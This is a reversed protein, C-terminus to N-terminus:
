PVGQLRSRALHFDRHSRASWRADKVRGSGYGLLSQHRYPASGAGSDDGCIPRRHEDTRGDDSAGRHNGDTLSVPGSSPSKRQLWPTRALMWDRQGTTGQQRNDILRSTYAWAQAILQQEGTEIENCVLASVLELNGALGSATLNASSVILRGGRRGFQLFLKPHFVGQASAGNVTYLQGAHKPLTSASELALTLMRSDPIVINNRCGAGRLRPLVINEYVDLDIGFTTAVSTHFSKEAFQEYLKMRRECDGCRTDDARRKRCPSHGEFFTIAPGLRPNTISRATRKVCACVATTWRSSFPTIARIGSSECPWGCTAGCSASRSLGVSRIASIM